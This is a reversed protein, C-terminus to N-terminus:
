ISHIVTLLIPEDRVQPLLVRPARPGIRFVAVHDELGAVAVARSLPDVGVLRAGGGRGLVTTSLRVHAVAKFRV